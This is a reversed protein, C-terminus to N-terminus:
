CVDTFHTMGTHNSFTKKQM